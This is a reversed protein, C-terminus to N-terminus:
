VEASSRTGPIGNATKGTVSLSTHRTGHNALEFLPNAALDRAQSPNIRIWRAGSGLMWMGIAM